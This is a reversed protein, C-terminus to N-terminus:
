QRYVNKYLDLVQLSEKQYDYYEKSRHRCVYYVPM